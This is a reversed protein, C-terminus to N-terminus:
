VLKVRARVVQTLDVLDQRRPILLARAAVGRSRVIRLQMVATVIFNASLAAASGATGWVPILLIALAIQVGTGVLASVISVGPQGRATLIANVTITVPTLALGPLAWRFPLVSAAFADGFLLRVLTPAMSYLVISALAMLAVQLRSIRAVADPVDGGGAALSSVLPWMTARPLNIVAMPILIGAAYFGADQLSLMSAVLVVDIRKAVLAIIAIAHQQVGIRLLEVGCGVSTRCPGLDAGARWWRVFIGVSLLSAVPYSALAGAVGWDFRFVLVWTLTIAVLASAVTRVTYVRMANAAILIVDAIASLAAPPVAAIALLIWLPDLSAVERDSLVAALLWGSGWAFTGVLVASSAATLAFATAIVESGSRGPRRFLVASGSPLGFGVLSVLIATVGTLLALAGKGEPGVARAVIVATLLQLPAVAWGLGLIIASQWLVRSHPAIAAM